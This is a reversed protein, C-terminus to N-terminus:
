RRKRRPPTYTPPPTYVPPPPPPTILAQFAPQDEVLGTLRDLSTGMAADLRQIRELPAPHTRKDLAYERTEPAGSLTQLVGGLGYPSYGSRAAIIVAMRDAEFEDDKGLGQIYLQRGAAVLITAFAGKLGGRGVFYQQMDGLAEGRLSKQLAAVHHRKVVHAIEHALVGALEAESRMRDLLGRTILVYGGPMSFANFDPSDIVGFRWPLGPRESHLALWRGLENVYTQRAPDDILPAAGMITGALDGGVKIEDAESMKGFSDGIKKLAKVGGVIKNINFQASGSQPLSLALVATVLIAARWPVM